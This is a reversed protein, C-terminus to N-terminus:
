KEDEEEIPVLVMKYGIVNAITAVTILTPVHGFNELRSLAPQSLGALIATQFQSIGKSKRKEVLDDIISYYNNTGQKEM